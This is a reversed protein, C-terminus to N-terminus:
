SALVYCYFDREVFNIVRKKSRADCTSDLTVLLTSAHRNFARPREEGIVCVDEKGDARRGVEAEFVDSIADVDGFARCRLDKGIEFCDSADFAALQPASVVVDDAGLLWQAVREFFVMLDRIEDVGEAVM